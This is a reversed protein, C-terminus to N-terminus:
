GGNDDFDAVIGTSLIIDRTAAPRQSKKAALPAQQSLNKVLDAVSASGDGRGPWGAAVFRGRPEVSQGRLVGDHLAQWFRALDAKTLEAGMESNQM